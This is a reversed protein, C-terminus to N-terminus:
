CCSALPFALLCVPMGGLSSFSFSPVAEVVGEKEGEEKEKERRKLTTIETKEYLGMRRFFRDM